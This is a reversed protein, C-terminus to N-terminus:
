LPFIIPNEKKPHPTFFFNFHFYPFQFNFNYLIKKQKRTLIKPHTRGGGVKEFNIRRAQFNLYM